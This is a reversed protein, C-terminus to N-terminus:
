RALESSLNEGEGANLIFSISAAQLKPIILKNNNLVKEIFTDIIHPDFQTGKYKILEEVAMDKTLVHKYVRENVMADYSDAVAIIRSLLPIEELKLGRPYGTGDFREHHYLVFQAIEAMEPSSSLIRFGIDSHRKIENWEQETLQESKNLVHEEIAIKGIDHLLGSVKLEYIEIEPLEMAIGIQQCLQSVRKSHKEIRPNKEHLTNFIANIINGRMSNSEVVKHKYMYDEASKLVKLLDDDNSEKTDWGFAISVNLSGIKMKSCANKIKEVIAETEEKKTRPLLIVFEDGGWRAATDDARIASKIANAAKKILKDGENHGFADNTLKLGNVDGMIISIPLESETDIRRIEEELFRRNYLGTLSDYYSM